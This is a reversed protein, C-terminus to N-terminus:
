KAEALGGLHVTHDDFPRALASELLLEAFKSDVLDMVQLLTFLFQDLFSCPPQQGPPSCAVSRRSTQDSTLLWYDSVNRVRSVPNQAIGVSGLREPWRRCM